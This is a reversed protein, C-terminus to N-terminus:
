NCSARSSTASCAIGSRARRRAYLRETDALIRAGGDPRPAACTTPTRACGSARDDRARARLSVAARVGRGLRFAQHRCVADVRPARRRRPLDFTDGHWHLVLRSRARLGALAPEREVGIFISRAGASRARPSRSATPGPRTNPYVRAGAAAALLQSGLCIGLVPADRALLERLLAIEPALFPVRPDGADGVGMPGGMVILLQDRRSTTPCPRAPTSARADRLAIGRAALLTAVREPGETPTHQLVIARESVRPDNAWDPPPAEILITEGSIPHRFRVSAAHLHLTADLEGARARARAGHRVARDGVIPHGAAALHARVQHTRGAHLRVRLLATAARREIVEWATEAPLPNRPRRRGARARRPPRRPRDARTEIGRTARARGVVEALYTKECDDAGDARRAARALRAASRAAVLM